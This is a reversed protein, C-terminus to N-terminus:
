QSIGMQTNLELWFEYGLLVLHLSVTHLAPLLYLDLVRFRYRHLVSTRCVLNKQPPGFFEVSEQVSRIM